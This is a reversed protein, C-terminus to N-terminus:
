KLRRRSLAISCIITRHRPVTSLEAFIAILASGFGRMAFVNNRSSSIARRFIKGRRVGSFNASRFEIQRSMSVRTLSLSAPRVRSNGKIAERRYRGEVARRL